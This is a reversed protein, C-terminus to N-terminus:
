DTIMSECEFESTCIWLLSHVRDMGLWLLVENVSMKYAQWARLGGFSGGFVKDNSCPLNKLVTLPAAARGTVPWQGGPLHKSFSNIFIQRLIIVSTPLFPNGSHVLQFVNALSYSCYWFDFILLKLIFVKSSDPM